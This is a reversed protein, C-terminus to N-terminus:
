SVKVILGMELSALNVLVTSHVMMIRVHLMAMVTIVEKVVNM